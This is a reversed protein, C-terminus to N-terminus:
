NKPVYQNVMFDGAGNICTQMWISGDGALRHAPIYADNHSGYETHSYVYTRGGINVENPTSAIMQGEPTYNHAAYYGPTWEWLGGQDVAGQNCNAYGYSPTWVGGGNYSPAYSSNSYSYSYGGRSAQRALREAEEQEQRIREEIEAKKSDLQTQYQGRQYDKLQNIKTQVEEINALETASALQSEIEHQLITNDHANKLVDNASYYAGITAETPTITDGAHVPLNMACSAIFFLTILKKKLMRQGEKM